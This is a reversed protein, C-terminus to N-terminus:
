WLPRKSDHPWTTTATTVSARGACHHLRSASLCGQERELKADPTQINTDNQEAMNPLVFNSHTRGHFPLLELPFFLDLLLLFLYNQVCHVAGWKSATALKEGSGSLVFFVINTGFVFDRAPAHEEFFEVVRRKNQERTKKREEKRGKKKIRLLCICGLDQELQECM